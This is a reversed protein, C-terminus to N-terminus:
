IYQTGYKTKYAIQDEPSMAEVDTKTKLQSLDTGTKNTGAKEVAGESTTTSTTSTDKNKNGEGAGAAAATSGGAGAQTLGSQLNQQSANLLAAKAASARDIEGRQIAEKKEGMGERAEIYQKTKDEKAEADLKELDLAEDSGLRMAEALMAPRAGVGAQGLLNARRAGGKEEVQAKGAFGQGARAKRMKLAEKSDESVTETGVKINEAAKKQKHATYLSVGAGVAAVGVAVWSM